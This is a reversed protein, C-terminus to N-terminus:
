GAPALRAVAWRCVAVAQEAVGVAQQVTRAAVEPVFIWLVGLTAALTVVTVALLFGAAALRPYRVSSTVPKPQMWWVPARRSPASRSPRKSTALRGGTRAAAAGAPQRKRALTAGSRSSARSTRATPAAPKRKANSKSASHRKKPSPRTM